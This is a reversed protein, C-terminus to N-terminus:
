NKKKTESEKRKSLKQIWKMRKEEVFIDCRFM